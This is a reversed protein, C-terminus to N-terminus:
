VHGDDILTHGRALLAVVLLDIASEQGIVWTSIQERLDAIKAGLDTLEM